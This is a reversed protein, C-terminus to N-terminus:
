IYNINVLKSVNVETDALCQQVKTSVTDVCFVCVLQHSFWQRVSLVGVGVKDKESHESPDKMVSHLYKAIDINIDPHLAKHFLPV